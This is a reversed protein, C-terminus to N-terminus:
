NTKTKHLLGDVNFTHNSKSRRILRIDSEGSLLLSHDGILQISKMKANHEFALQEVDEIRHAETGLEVDAATHFPNYESAINDPDAILSSVALSTGIERVRM